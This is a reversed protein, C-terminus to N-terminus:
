MGDSDIVGVSLIWSRTSTLLSEYLSWATWRPSMTTNLAGGWASGPM